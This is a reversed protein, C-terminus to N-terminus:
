ALKLNGRSTLAKGDAGLYDRLADLQALLPAVAAAAEVDAASPPIYVFPLEYPEPEVPESAPDFIQQHDGQAEEFPLANFEDMRAQLAAQLEEESSGSLELGDLLTKGMGFNPPDDMEERM